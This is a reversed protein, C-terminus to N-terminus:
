DPNSAPPNTGPPSDLFAALADVWLSPQDIHAMHGADELIVASANPLKAAAGAALRAPFTM